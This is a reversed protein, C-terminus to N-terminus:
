GDFAYLTKMSSFLERPFLVIPAVYFHGVSLLMKMSLIIDILCFSAVDIFSISSSIPKSSTLLCTRLIHPKALTVKDTFFSLPFYLFAETLYYVWEDVPCLSISSLLIEISFYLLVGFGFTEKVYSGISILYTEILLCGYQGFITNRHLSFISSRLLIRFLLITSLFLSISPSFFCIISLCIRM